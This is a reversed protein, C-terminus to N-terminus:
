EGSGGIVQDREVPEPEVEQLQLAATDIRHHDPSVAVIDHGMRVVEAADMPGLTLYRGRGIEM